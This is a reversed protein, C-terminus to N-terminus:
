IKGSEILAPLEKILEIADKHRILLDSLTNEFIAYSPTRLYYLMSEEYSCIKLMKTQLPLFEPLIEYRDIKALIMARGHETFVYMQCIPKEVIKVYDKLDDFHFGAVNEVRIGLGFTRYTDLGVFHKNDYKFKYYGEWFLLNLRVQQNWTLADWEPVTFMDKKYPSIFFNDVSARYAGRGIEKNDADTKSFMGKAM